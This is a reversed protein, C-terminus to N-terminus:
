KQYGIIQYILNGQYNSFDVWACSTETFPVLSIINNDVIVQLIQIKFLLMLLHFKKPKVWLEVQHLM